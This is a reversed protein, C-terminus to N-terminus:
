VIKTANTKSNCDNITALFICIGMIMLLDENLFLIDHIRRMHIYRKKKNLFDQNSTNNALVSCNLFIM